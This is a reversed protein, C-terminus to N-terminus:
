KVRFAGHCGNCQMTVHALGNMLRLWGAGDPPEAAEATIRAFDDAARHFEFGMDRFEPPMHRGIGLGQGIAMEKRALTGADKIKGAAMLQVVADLSMMHTRMHELFLTRVDPPLDIAIRTDEGSASGAVSCLGLAGALFMAKMESGALEIQTREYKADTLSVTEQRASFAV